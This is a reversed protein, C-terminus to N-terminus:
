RRSRCITTCLCGVPGLDTEVYRWNTIFSRLLSSVRVQEQVVHHFWCNFTQPQLYDSRVSDPLRSHDARLDHLGDQPRPQHNNVQGKVIGVYEVFEAETM